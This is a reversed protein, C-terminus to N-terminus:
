HTPSLIYWEARSAQLTLMVVRHYLYGLIIWCSFIITYDRHIVHGPQVTHLQLGGSDLNQGLFPLRLWLTLSESAPVYDRVVGQSYMSGLVVRKVSSCNKSTM